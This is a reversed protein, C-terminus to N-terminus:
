KSSQDCGSIVNAYEDSVLEEQLTTVWIVSNDSKTIFIAIAKNDIQDTSRQLSHNIRYTKQIYSM